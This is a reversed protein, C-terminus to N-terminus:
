KLYAVMFLNLSVANEAIKIDIRLRKITEHSFGKSLSSFTKVFYPIGIVPECTTGGLAEAAVPVM